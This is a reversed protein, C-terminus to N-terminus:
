KVSNFFIVAGAIAVLLIGAAYAVGAAPPLNCFPRRFRLLTWLLIFGITAFLFLLLGDNLDPSFMHFLLAWLFYAGLMANFGLMVSASIVAAVWAGQRPEALRLQLVLERNCEPCRDTRLARLNYTCAPCPEDRDALFSVLHHDAM